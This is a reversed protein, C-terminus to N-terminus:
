TFSTPAKVSRKAIGPRGSNGKNGPAGVVIMLKEVTENQRVLEVAGCNVYNHAYDVYITGHNASTLVQMRGPIKVVELGERMADPDAGTLRVAIMAAVANKATSTM